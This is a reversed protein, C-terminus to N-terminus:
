RDRCCGSLGILSHRKVSWEPPALRLAITDADNKSLGVIEIEASLRQGIASQVSIEGLAAALMVSPQLLLATLLVASLSTKIYSFM